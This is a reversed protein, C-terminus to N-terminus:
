RQKHFFYTKLKQKFQELSDTLQRIDHPLSNWLRPGSVSFGRQGFNVTRFQPVILDNRAASRLHQRGTVSTAPTCLERLYLPASGIFCNRVIICLKYQSRFVVPLWHLEDRIASTIRSFKPLNLVLRATANLVSQLRDLRGATVGFLISNCYDLRNHVFAYTLTLLSRKSLCNRVVRLRRLQFFCSRCLQKIHADMTLESDLLVGLNRVPDNSVLPPSISALSTLDRKALQQRTGFWIFQTKTANLRLRNSSMWNEVADIAALVRASLEEAAIPSGDGYLQTDDAYLQVALGFSEVIREVDATYLIYLLPGLISGQPVGCRISSWSSSSSGLRVYQSRSSLFSRIWAHASGTVGFSVLLRELLIDHDVTDFAASVDLLALLAVRGRDVAAYIDSLMRLIATETSYGRRFGSQFKPLLNNSHLYSVLQKAVVKEIVKSLFTLGSIPRYNKVDDVDAGVKKIVPTIIAKKQTAPLCAERISANCLRTIFPLLTDLYDKVLFTPVPDLDCSKSPSAGIIKRIDEETCFEFSSLLCETTEFSPAPAGETAARVSDLKDEMFRLYDAPSFSPLIGSRSVAPDGLLSSISRWLKRPNGTNSAICAEWYLNERERFQRHKSRAAEIWSLRDVDKRTLRYRRELMRVRRKIARCEDDFWPASPQFRTTVSRVPLFADLVESMTSHYLDFLQDTSITLFMSGCQSPTSIILSYM